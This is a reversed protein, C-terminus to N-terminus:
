LWDRQCNRVIWPLVTMVSRHSILVSTVSFSTLELLRIDSRWHTVSLNSKEIRTTESAKLPFTHGFYGKIMIGESLVICLGMWLCRIILETSDSSNVPPNCAKDSSALVPSSAVHGKRQFLNFRVQSEVPYRVRTHIDKENKSSKGNVEGYFLKKNLSM